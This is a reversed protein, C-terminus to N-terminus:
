EEFPLNEILTSAGLYTVRLIYPPASLYGADDGAVVIYEYQSGKMVNQDNYEFWDSKPNNKEVNFELEAINQFNESADKGIGRRGIYFTSLEIIDDGGVTKLPAQFKLNVSSETPIVELYRVPQPASEEPPKPPGKRGCATLTFICVLIVLIFKSNFM